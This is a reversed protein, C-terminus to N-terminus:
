FKYTAGITLLKAEYDGDIMSYEGEVNVKPTVSYGLGIGGALGSESESSSGGGINVEAEVKAVGLKAKAYLATNPFAYNYTGYLGYTTVNYEGNFGDLTFDADSSGVYEAEMGWSPTFKYGGYVGFATAEDYSDLGEDDLSVQGIKAGIYPQGNGYSMAAQASVSLFCGTILALLAKHSTKM